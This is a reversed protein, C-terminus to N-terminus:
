NPGFKPLYVWITDTGTNKVKKSNFRNPVRFLDEKSKYWESFQTEKGIQKAYRTGHKKVFDTVSHAAALFASLRSRFVKPNSKVKEMEQLYDKAEHLKENVIGLVGVLSLLPSNTTM